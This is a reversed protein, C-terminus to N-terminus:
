KGRIPNSTRFIGTLMSTLRAFVEPDIDKPVLFQVTKIESGGWSSVEMMFGKVCKLVLEARKMCWAVTMEESMDHTLLLPLTLTTVDSLSATKLVNRLGMVVPHRSNIQASMVSDDAVMHFLVHIECLNSHKTVYFDGNRLSSNSMAAYDPGVKEPNDVGLAEEEVATRRRHEERWKLASGVHEERISQVQLEFPPFHYETSRQCIDSFEKAVGSYTSVRDDTLLVLGCLNNSYLSMSTQLRQPLAEDGDSPYKCLDLVDAAVLRLNHMQKMQAGLTITFSEQLVPASGTMSCEISFASESRPVGAAGGGKEGNGGNTKLEEHVCMVWERFERRQTDRADGLATDWRLQTMQAEEMHQAALRNVKAESAGDEESNAAKAAAEVAAEMEGAQRAFMEAVERRREGCKEGIVAANGHELQLLTASLGASHILSHYVDAFVEENSVEDPRAFALVESSFASAWARVLADGGDSSM